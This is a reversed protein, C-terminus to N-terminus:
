EDESEWAGYYGRATSIRLLLFVMHWAAFLSAIWVGSHKPLMAM